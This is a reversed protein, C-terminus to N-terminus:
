KNSQATSFNHLLQEFTAESAVQVTLLKGDQGTIRNGTSFAFVLPSKSIQCLRQLQRPLLPASTAFIETDGIKSQQIEFRAVNTEPTKTSRKQIAMLLQDEWDPDASENSDMGVCIPPWGQDLPMEPNRQHGLTIGVNYLKGLLHKPGFFIPTSFSSFEDVVPLGIVHRFDGLVQYALFYRHAPANWPEVLIAYFPRVSVIEFLPM